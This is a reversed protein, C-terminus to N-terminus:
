ENGCPFSNEHLFWSPLNRLWKLHMQSKPTHLRRPFPMTVNEITSCVIGESMQTNSCLLHYWYHHSYSCKPPLPRTLNEIGLAWWVDVVQVLSNVVVKGCSQTSWGVLSVFCCVVPVGLKTIQSREWCWFTNIKTCTHGLLSKNM